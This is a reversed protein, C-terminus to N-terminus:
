PVVGFTGSWDSIEVLLYYGHLPSSRCRAAYSLDGPLHWDHGAGSRRVRDGNRDKAPCVPLDSQRRDASSGGTVGTRWDEHTGACHGLRDHVRLPYRGTAAPHYLLGSWDGQILKLGLVTGAGPDAAEFRPLMGFVDVSQMADFPSSAPVDFRLANGFLSRGEWPVQVGIEGAKAYLVPM